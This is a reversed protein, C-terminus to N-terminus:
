KNLLDDPSLFTSIDSSPTCPEALSKALERKSIARLKPLRYNPDVWDCHQCAGAVVRYSGCTGCRTDKQNQRLRAATFIGLLHEVLKLGIEADMRGANKAHTLWNAYEWAETASKKLCSRLRSSSDGGALYNALLETWARFDSAKPATEGAPVLEPTRTEGVFSVLCERLRVGVSQSHEAEDGGDYEAFAQQWRRWSGPLLYAPGPGVPVQRDQKYSVRLMLGVHFTLAVDRSKFDTQDYLNVPNTIVWWRSSACYVDWIDHRVPGVMESAAKEAHRVKQHAEQEVYKLIADKERSDTRPHGQRGQRRKPTKAKLTVIRRAVM